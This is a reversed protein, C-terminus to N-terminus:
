NGLGDWGFRLPGLYWGLALGVILFGSVLVARAWSAKSRPTENDGFAWNMLVIFNVLPILVVVFAWLWQGLTVAEERARLRNLREEEAMEREKQQKDKSKQSFDLREKPAEGAWVLEPVEDASVWHDMGETWVMAKKLVRGRDVLEQLEVFTCPGCLEGDYMYFWEEMRLDHAM